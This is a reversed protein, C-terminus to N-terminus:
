KNSKYNMQPCFLHAMLALFDLVLSLLLLYITKTLSKAQLHRYFLPVFGAGKAFDDLYKQTNSPDRQINTELIAMANGYAMKKSYFGATTPSKVGDKMQQTIHQDYLFGM